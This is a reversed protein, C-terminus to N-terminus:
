RKGTKSTDESIIIDGYTEIRIVTSRTETTIESMQIDEKVMDPEDKAPSVSEYYIGLREESTMIDLYVMYFSFILIVTTCMGIGIGICILSVTRDKRNM